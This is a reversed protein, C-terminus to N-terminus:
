KYLHLISILVVFRFNELCTQTEEGKNFWTAFFTTGIESDSYGFLRDSTKKGQTDKFNFHLEPSANTGLNYYFIFYFLGPVEAEQWVKLRGRETM